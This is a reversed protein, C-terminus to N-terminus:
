APPGSTLVVTVTRQQGATDTYQVTVTQGPKVDNVMVSQLASQTTVAHGAVSTIVDGGALGSGAAPSGSVVGSIEVGNGTSSGESGPGSGSEGIQVGLFATAGAHVTSSSDGAEIQQAISTAVGIPIAFGSGSSESAFQSTDSGATDMGIVRGSANVLPGGSDGSQIDANTEIMDTLNEATGTLEDSATISQNTATVTGGAYSPTGGSGGANGIGVVEEGVSASASSTTVTQLGSAGTLKLVAVDKTVSYGVVTAAYTRGNGVDTVSISTAGDIVHNNTLVEGNSTLVMGTGAGQATGYDITTNVDVLGPDVRAAISSADSPGTGGTSPATGSSGSGGFSGGYGSGSGPAYGNGYPYGSGSGSGSGPASGGNSGSSGNGPLTTGSGSSAAATHSSGIAHGAFGGIAGVGLVAAVGGAIAWGRRRRRGPWAAERATPTYAGAAPQGQWPGAPGYAWSGPDQPPGLQPPGPQPPGPQPPGPQPSGPQYGTGATWPGAPPPGPPPPPPQGELPQAPFEETQGDEGGPAPSFADDPQNSVSVADAGFRPIQHLPGAPKRATVQPV